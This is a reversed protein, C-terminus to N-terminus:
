RAFDSSIWEANGLLLPVQDREIFAILWMPSSTPRNEGCRLPRDARHPPPLKAQAAGDVFGHKLHADLFGL